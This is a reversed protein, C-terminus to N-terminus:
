TMRFPLALVVNHEDRLATSFHEVALNTAVESLHKVFKGFLPLALNQLTMQAQVVHMHHDSNWRLMRNRMHDPVDLALARNPRGAIEHTPIPAEFTVVEPRPSVEHGCHPDILARDALVNAMLFLVVLFEVLLTQELM